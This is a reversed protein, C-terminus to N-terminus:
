FVFGEDIKVTVSVCALYHDVFRCTAANHEEEVLQSSTATHSWDM